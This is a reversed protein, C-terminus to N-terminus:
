EACAKLFALVNEVTVEPEIKHSPAIIIGGDYGYEKKVRKVENYVDDTTGFPLTTQTGITGDFVINKGYKQKIATLDMCEPQCPNLITVGIDILEPIIEEVNGDSHYKIQIKPNITKAASFVRAWRSKIFKRWLEKSFMLNNQNAVDDGCVLLDVGAKAAIVALWEWTDCMKDLIFECCEPEAIMDMLFPEYGRIMWAAEYISGLSSFSVTKDIRAQRVDEEFFSTDMHKLDLFPYEEIEKLSTANRLPSIIKTFHFSSGPVSLVGLNDITSGEPMVCDTYYKTYDPNEYAEKGPRLYAPSPNFMGFHEKIENYSKFGTADLIAKEAPPTFRAYFLLDDHAEHNITAQFREMQTMKKM